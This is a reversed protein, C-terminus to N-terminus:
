LRCGWFAGPVSCDLTGGGTPRAELVEACATHRAPPTTPELITGALLCSVYRGHEFLHRALRRREANTSDPAKFAQEVYRAFVDDSSEVPDWESLSDLVGCAQGRPSDPPLAGCQRNKLAVLVPPGFWSFGRYASQFAAEWAACGDSHPDGRCEIELAVLATRWHGLQEVVERAREDFTAEGELVADRHRLIASGGTVLLFGVFPLVVASAVQFRYVALLNAFRPRGFPVLHAASRIHDVQPTCCKACWLPAVGHGCQGCARGFLVPPGVAAVGSRWDGFDRALADRADQQQRARDTLPTRLGSDPDLTCGDDAAVLADREHLVRRHFASAIRGSWIVASALTALFAIMSVTGSLLLAGPLWPTAAPAFMTLAQFAVVAALTVCLGILSRRYWKRESPGFEVLVYSAYTTPRHAPM